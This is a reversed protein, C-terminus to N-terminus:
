LKAKPHMTMCVSWAISKLYDFLLPRYTLLEFYCKSAYNPSIVKM